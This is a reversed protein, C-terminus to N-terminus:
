QSSIAHPETLRATRARRRQATLISTRGHSRAPSRYPSTTPTAKKHSCAYKDIFFGGLNLPQAPFKGGEFLGTPVTFKPVYIMQTTAGDDTLFQVERTQANIQEHLAKLSLHKIM